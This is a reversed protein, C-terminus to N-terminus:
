CGVAALVQQVVQLPPSVEIVKFHERSYSMVLWKRIHLKQVM